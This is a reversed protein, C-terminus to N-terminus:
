RLRKWFCHWQDPEVELLEVLLRYAHVAAHDRFCLTVLNEPGDLGGHSRFQVHHLQLRSDGATGCVRCQYNDRELVM